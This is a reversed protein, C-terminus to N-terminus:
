KTKERKINEETLTENLKTKAFNLTNKTDDVFESIKEKISEFIDINKIKSEEEAIIM